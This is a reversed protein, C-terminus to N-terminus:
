SSHSPDPLVYSTKQLSQRFERSASGLEITLPWGFFPAYYSLWFPVYRSHLEAGARSAAGMEAWFAQRDPAPRHRFAM